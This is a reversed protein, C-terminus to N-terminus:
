DLGHKALLKKNAADELMQHGVFGVAVGGAGGAVAGIVPLASAGAIGGGVAGVVAGAVVGLGLYALGGGGKGNGAISGAFGGATVGAALGLVAGAVRGGTGTLAGVYHGATGLVAAGAAITAVSRLTEGEKRAMYDKYYAEQRKEYDDGPTEKPASEEAPGKKPAGITRNNLHTTINM